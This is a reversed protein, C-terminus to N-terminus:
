GADRYARKRAQTARFDFTKFPAINMERLFGNYDTCTPGFGRAASDNRDGVITGCPQCTMGFLRSRNRHELSAILLKEKVEGLRGADRPLVVTQTM